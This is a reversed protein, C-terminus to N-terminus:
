HLDANKYHKFKSETTAEVLDISEKTEEKHDTSLMAIRVEKTENVKVVACHLGELFMNFNPPLASHSLDLPEAWVHNILIRM